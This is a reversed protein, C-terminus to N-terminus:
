KKDEVPELRTLQSRMKAACEKLPLKENLVIEWMKVFVPVFLGHFKWDRSSPHPLQIAPIGNITGIELTTKGQKDRVVKERRVDAESYKAINSFADTGLLVIRQPSLIGILKILSPLSTEYHGGKLQEAKVTAFPTLNTWVTKADDDFGNIHRSKDGCIFYHANGFFKMWEKSVESGEADDEFRSNWCPNGALFELASLTTVGPRASGPNIGIVMTEVPESICDFPSQQIYQMDTRESVENFMRVADQAWFQLETRIDKKNGM